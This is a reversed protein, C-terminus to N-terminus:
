ILIERPFAADLLPRYDELQRKPVAYMDKSDDYAMFAIL